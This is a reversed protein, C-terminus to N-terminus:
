KEMLEDMVIYSAYIKEFTEDVLKMFNFKNNETSEMKRVKLSLEMLTSKIKNDICPNIILQNDQFIQKHFVSLDFYIRRFLYKFLFLKNLFTEINPYEEKDNTFKSNLDIFAFREDIPRSISWNQSYIEKILNNFSNNSLYVDSLVYQKDHLHIYINGNIYTYTYLYNTFDITSINSQLVPILENETFYVLDFISKNAQFYIPQYLPSSHIGYLSTNLYYSTKNCYDSLNKLSKNYHNINHQIMQNHLIIAASFITPANLNTMRIFENLSLVLRNPNKTPKNVSQVFSDQLYLPGYLRM